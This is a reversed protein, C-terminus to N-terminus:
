KKGFKHKLGIDLSYVTEPKCKTVSRFVQNKLFFLPPLILNFLISTFQSSLKDTEDVWNKEKQIGGGRHKHGSDKSQVRRGIEEKEVNENEIRPESIIRHTSGM